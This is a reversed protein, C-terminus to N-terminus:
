RASLEHLDERRDARDACDEPSMSVSTVLADMLARLTADLRRTAEAGEVPPVSRSRAPGESALPSLDEPVVTGDFPDDLYGAFAAGLAKRPGAEIVVSDVGVARHRRAVLGLQAWNTVTNAKREM